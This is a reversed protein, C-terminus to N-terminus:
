EYMVYEPQPVLSLVEKATMLRSSGRTDEDFFLKFGPHVGNPKIEMLNGYTAIKSHVPGLGDVSKIVAVGPYPTVTSEDKLVERIVEHFVLAKEPLHDQEVITSLFAAVENVAAGTSQGWFKGPKQKPKMAWEPDLAVGVDPEHLYTEFTKVETLFDSQGPQINLLLLARSQRAVRLYEDVVSADVRRRYKGDSGPYGQVVVAILEFVPLLKRGQAYPAARAELAKAKAPLNGQLEGLAPAGPTGCFGVLRHDPFISRGGRPLEKPPEPPPTPESPPAPEAPVASPPSPAADSSAISATRPLIPSDGTLCAAATSVVAVLILTGATHRLASELVNGNHVSRPSPGVGELTALHPSDLREARVRILTIGGCTAAFWLCVVFSVLLTYVGARAVLNPCSAGGAILGASM